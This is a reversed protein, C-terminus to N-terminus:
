FRGVYNIRVIRETMRAGGAGIDRGALDINLDDNILMKVGLNLRADPLYHLNDYEALFYFKKDINYTANLFGFVQSNRFDYINGGFNVALGPFFMERGLVLYIGKERQIFQGADKDYFYGQGDYGIAIAPLVMSGEYAKIKVALAPPSVSTDQTGIVKNVEWGFGLDVVKFVGFNLKTLIGGDSFLRFGLDYMGYDLMESTPTDIVSSMNELAQSPTISVFLCLLVVFLIFTKKM